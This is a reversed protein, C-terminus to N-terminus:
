SFVKTEVGNEITRAISISVHNTKTKTKTKVQSQKRRQTEITQQTNNISKKKSEKKM